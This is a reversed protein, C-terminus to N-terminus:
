NATQAKLNGKQKQQQTQQQKPQTTQQPATLTAQKQTKQQQKQPQTNQVPQETNEEKMREKVEKLTEKPITTQEQGEVKKEPVYLMGTLDNKCRFQECHYNEGCFHFKYPNCMPGEPFYDLKIEYNDKIYVNCRYNICALGKACNRDWICSKDIEKKMKKIMAEKQDECLAMSILLLLFYVNLKDSM